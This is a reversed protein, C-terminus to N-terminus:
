AAASKLEQQVVAACRACVAPHQAVAGVDDTYKWCRECKAGSAKEVMVAVGAVEALAFAGAPAPGEALQIGSTICVDALDIGKLIQALATDAIYVKPAAELSAGIVKEARKIELAGTVVGRVAMIKQWKEELAPHNWEAPAAPLQSLHISEKLDDMGVGKYALWAEEATFSLVPSLWHALYNFVQDLVTLIARRKASDKAECYLADKCIDFYFASLERACFNHVATTMTLFDFNKISARVVSDVEYLKHLVWKDMDSLDAYATKQAPNFGNLNGLLYCFTGRIRRYVDVHGKLIHEGFKIDATYDSGTVWLRLIDAGHMEMLKVPSTVNGESKSMKYGKEDLIFGHTLVAKYPADGRTGCGVLLSSQFWGRHQDSGELYLDAPRKLEPRQELVFGQTSGSEFWVDIIDKVQEYDDAKYDPGLFEQATHNFWADSGEKEFTDYIRQLVKEDKLPEHTKKNVFIAIPVGWARQRSVCWDGRGEVMAGIRNKGREPVFRTKEIEALAKQRLGNTEMSIFWQPTNRFIVPAKSRWSHPYSHQVQAKAVLNGAEQIALMVLKNAPGKKGDPMYVSLGAFLPVHEFYKGDGGVTHPVEIHHKMGLRYDDEGHGPAIHVFGTGTDTTVFDGALLPVDFDYGKGHLPHKCIVGALSSGKGRWFVKGKTIAFPKEVNLLIIKDGNKVYEGDGGEEVEIGVYDIDDGYAVARNGPLTWPTTTWIVVSAGELEKPGKKVPFKVWCTDSTIDKYEVEAEALATQEPISWMVPKSGRYLSGNLLFKHIESAILAESKKDMTVYPKKFDGLIGLRQFEGSQVGVWKQAFARCEARFGIPDTDKTGNKGKARFEEEVKWEIPLGHCDFGPVLPADYGLMQHSRCVVDKLVTSLVHGLHIHGNAFPPGMHLIFKERGKSAARQLAYLGMKEWRQQLEPEKQALGARRPFDTKPLHITQGYDITM